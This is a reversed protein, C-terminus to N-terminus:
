PAAQSMPTKPDLPYSPPPSACVTKTENHLIPGSHEALPDWSRDGMDVPADELVPELSRISLRIKILSSKVWQGLPLWEKM